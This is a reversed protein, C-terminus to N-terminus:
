YSVVTTGLKCNNYVFYLEPDGLRICGGSLAGRKNIDLRCHIALGNEHFSNWTFFIMPKGLETGYKILKFVGPSTHGVTGIVCDTALVQKWRGKSGKFVTFCSSFQNIWILYETQSEYGKGNIYAERQAKTYYKYSSTVWLNDFYLNTGKIKFKRGTKMSIATLTGGNRASTWVSTGRKVTITKGTKLDKTKYDTKVKSAWFRGHVASVDIKKGKAKIVESEKSFKIHGAVRRYSRVIIQSVKGVTLGKLQYNTELTSGAKVYEDEEKDYVYIVYGTANKAADWALFVSKNGYCIRQLNKVVGPTVVSTQVEVAPSGEKGLYIQNKWVTYAYVQYFYPTEPELGKITYKRVSKSLKAIRQREGTEEDVLYVMYGDAGKVDKWSLTVSTETTGTVSVKKVKDPREPAASAPRLPVLTLLFVTLSFLLARSFLQKKM